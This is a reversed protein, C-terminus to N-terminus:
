RKNSNNKLDGDKLNEKRVKSKEEPSMGLNYNYIVGKGIEM